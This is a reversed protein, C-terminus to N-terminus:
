GELLLRNANRLRMLEVARRETEVAEAAAEAVAAGADTEVLELSRAFISTDDYAPVDVISVDFLKKIKTIARHTIGNEKRDCYGM